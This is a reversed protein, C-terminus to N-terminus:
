LKKLRCLYNKNEGREGTERREKKDIWKKIGERDPGSFGIVICGRLGKQNQWCFNTTERCTLQRDSLPLSLNAGAQWARSTAPGCRGTVQRPAGATDGQRRRPFRRLAAARILTSKLWPGGDRKRASAMRSSLPRLPGGPPPM